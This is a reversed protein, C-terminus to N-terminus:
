GRWSSELYPAHDENCVCFTNNDKFFSIEKLCLAANPFTDGMYRQSLFVGRLLVRYRLDLSPAEQRERYPGPRSQIALFIKRFIPSLRGRMRSLM